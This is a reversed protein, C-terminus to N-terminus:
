INGDVVWRAKAIWHVKDAGEVTKVWNFAAKNTTANRGALHGTRAALSAGTCVTLLYKLKSTKPDIRESLWDVHPQTASVNRTGGGDPVMIIDLEPADDLTHTPLDYETFDPSAFTSANGIVIGTLVPRDISVPDMNTSLLSLTLPHQLSLGSNLAQLPGFLDLGTFGPFILAGIRLPTTVNVM